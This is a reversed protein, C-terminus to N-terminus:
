IKINIGLNISKLNSWQSNSLYKCGAASIKGNGLNNNNISFNIFEVDKKVM